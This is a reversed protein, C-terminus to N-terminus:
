RPPALLPEEAMYLLQTGPLVRHSKPPNLIEEGTPTRLGIVLGGQRSLQLEAM